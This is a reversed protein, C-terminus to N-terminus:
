GGFPIVSALLNKAYESKAKFLESTRLQEVIRGQYLFLVKDCLNTITQLDHAIFLYTMNLDNKLNRLLKLIQSQVSVDLSSLAEDFVIFRPQTSISRALCVRQLQGGSLEHPYRKLLTTPLEVKDLLELILTTLKDSKKLASLPEAIIEQVTFRSNISTTYDQFVVSMQGRHSKSWAIISEGEMFIEGSSPQELGLILRSLTSKGSGSEGILGVCEGQGVSFTVGRLIDQSKRSFLSGYTFYSKYADKVELM